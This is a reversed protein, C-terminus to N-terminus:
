GGGAVRQRHELSTQRRNLYFSTEGPPYPRPSNCPSNVPSVKAMKFRFFLFFTVAVDAVAYQNVVREGEPVFQKLKKADDSTKVEFFGWEGQVIQISYLDNMLKRINEESSYKDLFPRYEGNIMSYFLRFEEEPLEELNKNKM